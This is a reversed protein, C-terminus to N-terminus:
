SALSRSPECVPLGALSGASTGSLGLCGGPWASGGLPSSPLFSPSAVRRPPCGVLRVGAEGELRSQVLLSFWVRFLAAFAARPDM